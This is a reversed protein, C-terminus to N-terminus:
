SPTSPPATGSGPRLARRVAALAAKMEEKKGHFVQEVEGILRELLNIYLTNRLSDPWKLEDFYRM